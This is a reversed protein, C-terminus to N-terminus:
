CFKLTTINAGDAYRYALGRSLTKVLQIGLGGPMVEALPQGVPRAVAASVDFPKGNDEFVLTLGDAARTLGIRARVPHAAAGAEATEREASGHRVLNTFLEEVCLQVAYSVEPEFGQESCLAELWRAADMIGNMTGPFEGTWAQGSEM